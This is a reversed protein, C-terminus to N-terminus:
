GVWQSDGVILDYSTGKAAWETGVRTYFDGWPTQVVNVKIGTAKEYDNGIQQLYNAPDWQAWWITLESVKDQAAVSAAGGFTAVMLTALLFLLTSKKLM